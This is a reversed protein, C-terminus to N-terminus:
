KCQFTIQRRGGVPSEDKELIEYGDACAKRAKNNCSGWDEVVGSCTTMMIQQKADKVVVPQSEGRQLQACATLFTFMVVILLKM